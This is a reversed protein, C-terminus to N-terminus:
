RPSPLPRPRGAGIAAALSRDQDTYHGAAADLTRALASTSDALLVQSRGWAWAAAHAPWGERDGLATLLSHGTSRCLEADDALEGALVSLEAALARLAAPRVSIEEAASPSSM